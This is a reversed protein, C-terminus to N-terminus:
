WVKWGIGRGVLCRVESAEGPGSWRGSQWMLGLLAAQWDETGLM